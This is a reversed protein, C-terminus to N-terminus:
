RQRVHEGRYDFLLHCLPNRMQVHIRVFPAPVADAAPPSRVFPWPQAGIRSLMPVGSVVPDTSVYGPFVPSLVLIGLSSHASPASEIINFSGTLMSPLSFSLIYSLNLNLNKRMEFEFIRPNPM